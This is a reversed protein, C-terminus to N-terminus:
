SAGGASHEVQDPAARLKDVQALLATVKDLLNVAQDKADGELRGVCDDLLCAATDLHGRTADLDWAIAYARDVAATM